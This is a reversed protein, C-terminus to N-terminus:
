EDVKVGIEHYKFGYKKLIKRNYINRGDFIFPTKMKAKMTEFDPNLFEEWETLIFLGDVDELADVNDKCYIIHDVGKFYVERAENMARPDYVKVSAGRDLLEQIVVISTAERMDDTNPKFALGWVGFTRGKLEGQFEELAKQVLLRKQRENTNRVECLISMDCGLSEGLYILANIDKPFCSGGYGCGPNLFQNGIRSDTEMGKKVFNIDAGTAECINAIENIFSIKTALLCNSAYKTMEASKRDMFLIDRDDKVFHCYLEYFIPQLEEKEVGIIVREPHLCDSVATGERLFEPNSVVDVEFGKGSKQLCQNIIKEVKEGTNVPVTSKNVIIAPEELTNGIIEAAAEVYQLDAAGCESMPTGVAIFCLDIKKKLCDFNNAFSIREAELNDKLMKGLTPEYIPVIGQNLMYIKKKNLDVCVVDNGREAFCVGTVLGVYGTGIVVIKM